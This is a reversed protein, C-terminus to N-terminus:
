NVFHKDEKLKKLEDDALFFVENEAPFNHNRVDSAYQSVANHIVDNISAYRRAFKPTFDTYKGLIDDAVLIQGSCYRGAGIGLTPVPINDTIYKASEEPVMELVIGFVGADVLRNAWELLKLTSEYTKGQIKHGGITHMFQPTFGLHGLVPIGSQVCRTVLKILHNNAGEIKIASAGAKLMKGANELGQEVSVNYSMFPMDGIVFSNKAGKSVAKVFVIMEDIGIVYTDRYGLAVMALSDGVLILDVGAQEIVKATSYDYATIGVINKRDDKLKQLKAVNM